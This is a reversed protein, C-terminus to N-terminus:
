CVPISCSVGWLACIDGLCIYQQQESSGHSGCTNSDIHAQAVVSVPKVRILHASHTINVLTLLFIHQLGISLIGAGVQAFIM